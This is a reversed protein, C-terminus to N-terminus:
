PSNPNALLIKHAIPTFEKMLRSHVLYIQNGDFEHPLVRVREEVIRRCVNDAVLEALLVRFPASHQGPYGDNPSGLYRSISDHTTTILLKNPERRDWTARWNQGLSYSVLEFSLDVGDEDKAAVSLKAEATRGDSEAVVTTSGNLKRGEITVTAEFYTTGAVPELQSRTRLAAVSGDELRFTIPPIGNTTPDFRARVKLNRRGGERVTYAKRHFSFGGPIEVDEPEAPIVHIEAFVPDLGDVRCGVQVRSTTEGRLTFSARQMGDRRPDPELDGPESTVTLSKGAAKSLELSVETGHPLGLKGDVRVYFQKEQGVAVQTFTPIIVLGKEVFSKDNVRDTPSVVDLDDLKDRMFQSAEKALRRLRATTEKAEVAQKGKKAEEKDKEFLVRLIETPQGYLATTFPHNAQLGGRRNPDFLLIPNDPPHDDGRERREDWELALRDIGSSELRGFYNEAAPDRDLEPLLFSCDHVARSGCVLIGSRRFRRDDPDDLPGPSKYVQFRARVGQYGPVEYEEDAVLESAPPGVHIQQPKEAGVRLMVKSSAFIDRLAYHWPLDRLITQKLPAQVSPKLRVTVKTGNQPIGLRKRDASTAKSNRGEGWPIYKFDTTIEAKRVVGNHISEVTVHGLAACDKLGRAMFGRDGHDSTRDGMRGVAREMDEIGEARDSVTIVSPNDGRHREVEVLIVGRDDSALGREFLRRYSDDANTFLEVLLDFVDQISYQASIQGYRRTLSIDRPTGQKM